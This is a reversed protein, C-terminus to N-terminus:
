ASTEVTMAWPYPHGAGFSFAESDTVVTQALGEGGGAIGGELVHSPRLATVEQVYTAQNGYDELACARM